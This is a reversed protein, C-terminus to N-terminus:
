YDGCEWCEPLLLCVPSLCGMWGAVAPNVWESVWWWYRQEIAGDGSGLLSRLLVDCWKCDGPDCNVTAHAHLMDCDSRTKDWYLNALLLDPSERRWCTSTEEGDLTCGVNELKHALHMKKCHPDIDLADLIQFDCCNVTLFTIIELKCHCSNFM